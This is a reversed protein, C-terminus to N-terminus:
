TSNNMSIVTSSATETEIAHEECSPKTSSATFLRHQNPAHQYEDM